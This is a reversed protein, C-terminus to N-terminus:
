DKSKLVRFPLWVRVAIIALLVIQIKPYWDEPIM